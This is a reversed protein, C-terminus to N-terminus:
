AIRVHRTTEVKVSSFRWSRAPVAAYEGGSNGDATVVQQIAAKASAASAEGAVSFTEAQPTKRLVIYATM